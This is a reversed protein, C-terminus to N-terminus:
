TPRAPPRRCRSIRKIRAIVSRGTVWSTKTTAPAVADVAPQPRQPHQEGLFGVVHARPGDALNAYCLDGNFLHFLPRLREVGLTTDRPPRRASITTSTRRIRCRSARRRCTSRASRRRARIASARSPSHRAAARRPAFTGFEPAAGDHLAAYLYATNPQLPKLSAHYAYVVRGSKADTYDDARADATRELKGDLLGVVVRPRRVPQLTHWSVVIESSADAGFQLHLGQVPPVPSGTGAVVAEAVEPAILSAAAVGIGAAALLQRRSLATPENDFEYM